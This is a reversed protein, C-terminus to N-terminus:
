PAEVAPPPPPRPGVFFSILGAVAAASAVGLGINAILAQSRAQELARVTETQFMAARATAVSATSQLGFWAALGGAVAGVGLFVFPVFPVRSRAEVTPGVPATPELPTVLPRDSSTGQQELRARVRAADAEAAKRAAVEQELRAMAERARKADAEAQVRREDDARRRAQEAARQAQELQARAQALADEQRKAEAAREAEKKAAEAARKALIPALEAKVQARLTDFAKSIKPSVKVPLTAEPKLYLGERWAAKAVDERGLEFQLVGEYLAITSDDDIGGSAQKARALQELAREYELSEYLRSAALLYRQAVESTQALAAPALLTLTLALSRLFPACRM